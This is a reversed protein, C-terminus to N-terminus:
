LNIGRQKLPNILTAIDINNQKAYQLAFQKPTLGSQRVQNLITQAQPNNNFIQMLLQDPGIGRNLLDLIMNTQM